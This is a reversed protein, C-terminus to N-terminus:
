FSFLMPNHTILLLLCYLPINESGCQGIFLGVKYISHTFKGADFPQRESLLEWLLIGYSYVDYMETPEINIDHWNEPPIHTVTGGLSKRQTKV